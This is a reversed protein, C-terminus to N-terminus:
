HEGSRVQLVRGSTAPPCQSGISHHPPNLYGGFAARSWITVKRSMTRLHVFTLERPSGTTLDHGVTPSCWGVPGFLTKMSGCTVLTSCLTAAIGRDSTVDLRSRRIARLDLMRM